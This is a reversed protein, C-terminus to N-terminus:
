IMKIKIDIDINNFVNIILESVDYWNLKDLGCGIKVMALKKIDNTICLEKLVLLSKHLDDMSPKHYYREKTVLNFVNDVLLCTPETPTSYMSNLKQRLNFKKDFQKAVGLGLKFDSSICHVLYRDNEDFIDGKEEKYIFM